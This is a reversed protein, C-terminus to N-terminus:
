PCCLVTQALNGSNWAIDGHKSIIIEHAYIYKVGTPHRVAIIMVTSYLISPGWNHMFWTPLMCHAYRYWLNSGKWWLRPVYVLNPHFLAPFQDFLPRITTSLRKAVNLKQKKLLGILLSQISKPQNPPNISSKLYNLQKTYVLFSKPLSTTKDKAVAWFTM